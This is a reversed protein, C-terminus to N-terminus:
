VITTMETGRPGGYLAASSEQGNLNGNANGNLKENRKGNHKSAAHDELENNDGTPKETSKIWPMM